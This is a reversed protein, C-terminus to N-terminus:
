EVAFAPHGARERAGASHELEPDVRFAGVVLRDEGLVFTEDEKARAAPTRRERRFRRLLHAEFIDGVDLAAEAFPFFGATWRLRRLRSASATARGGCARTATEPFM